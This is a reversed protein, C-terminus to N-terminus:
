LRKHGIITKATYTSTYEYVVTVHSLRVKKGAGTGGEGTPTTTQQLKPSVGPVFVSVWKENEMNTEMSHLDVVSSGVFVHKNNKSNNEKYNKEKSEKNRKTKKDKTSENERFLSITLSETPPLDEFVFKEGWFLM